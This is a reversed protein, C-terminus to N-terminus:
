RKGRKFKRKPKGTEFSEFHRSDVRRVTRIGKGTLVPIGLFYM